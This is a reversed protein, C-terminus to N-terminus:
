ALKLSSSHLLNSYFNNSRIYFVRLFNPFVFKKIYRQLMFFTLVRLVHIIVARNNNLIRTNAIDNPMTVVRSYCFM